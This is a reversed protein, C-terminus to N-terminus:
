FRSLNLYSPKPDNIFKTIEDENIKAPKHVEINPFAASVIRVDDEAWHTFGDHSYDRDRGSGVLKIPTKEHDVYNRIMEFPRYLLFPTISYCVPIFGEYFLGTGIGIMLQESSGTNVFRDPFDRRIDDFVGYGLDATILFVRSDKAMIGHLIKAFDKRM